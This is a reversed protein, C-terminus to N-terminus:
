VCARKFLSPSTSSPPLTTCPVHLDKCVHLWGGSFFSFLCVCVCVGMEIILSDRLQSAIHHLLRYHGGPNGVATDWSLMGAPGIFELATWECVLHWAHELLVHRVADADIILSGELVRGAQRGDAGASKIDEDDQAGADRGQRRSATGPGPHPTPLIYGPQLRQITQLSRRVSQTDGAALAGKALELYPYVHLAHALDGERGAALCIVHGLLEAAAGWEGALRLEHGLQLLADCPSTATRVGGRDDRVAGERCAREARAQLSKLRATHLTAADGPPQARALFTAYAATTTVAGAEDLLVAHLAHAGEEATLTASLLVVHSASERGTAETAGTAREEDSGDPETLVAARANNHYLAVAPRCPLQGPRAGPASSVQVRVTVPGAAVVAAPAPLEFAVSCGAAGAMRRAFTRRPPADPLSGWDRGAGPPDSSAAPPHVLLVLLALACAPQQWGLRVVAAARMRRMQEGAAGNRHHHSQTNLFIAWRVRRVTLRTRERAM